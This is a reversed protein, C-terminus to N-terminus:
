ETLPAPFPVGCEGALGELEELVTPTLAIGIGTKGLYTRYRREGPYLIEEV